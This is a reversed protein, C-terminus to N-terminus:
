PFGGTIDRPSLRSTWNVRVPGLLLVSQVPAFRKCFVGENMEIEPVDAFVVVDIDVPAEELEDLVVAEYEAVDVEFEESEEADDELLVDKIVEMVLMEELETYVFEIAPTFEDKVPVLGDTSVIEFVM